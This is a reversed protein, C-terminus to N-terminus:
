HLSESLNAIWIPGFLSVQVWVQNLGLVRDPSEDWGGCLLHLVLDLLSLLLEVKVADHFQVNAVWLDEALFWKCKVSLYHGGHDRRVEESGNRRIDM